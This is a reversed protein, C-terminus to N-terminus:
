NQHVFYTEPLSRRLRNAVDWEDRKAEHMSDKLWVNRLSVDAALTPLIAKRYESDRHDELRHELDNAAGVYIVSEARALEDFWKARGPYRRDWEVELDAPKVIDLAYVGSSNKTHGDVDHTFATLDSPLTLTM